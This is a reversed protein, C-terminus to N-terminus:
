QLEGVILMVSTDPVTFLQLSSEQDASTWQLVSAGTTEIVTDVAPAGYHGQLTESLEEYLATADEGDELPFTLQVSTFSDDLFDLTAYVPSDQYTFAEDEPLTYSEYEQSEMTEDDFMPTTITPDDLTIGLAKAVAGQDQGYSLGSYVYSGEENQLQDLALEKNQSGQQCGALLLCGLCLALLRFLNKKM